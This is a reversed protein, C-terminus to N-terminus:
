WKREGKYYYAAKSLPGSSFTGPNPNGYTSGEMNCARRHAGMMTMQGTTSKTDNYPIGKDTRFYNECLEHFLVSKRCSTGADDYWEGSKALAVYGDFGAKPHYNLGDKSDLGNNSANIVGNHSDDISTYAGNDTTASTQGDIAEYFYKKDSSVLKNVLSLGPDKDLVKNIKKQSLNGFNMTVKGDKGFSVYKEYRSRKILSLIDNKSVQNNAIWFERGDPDVLKIPNWACYNYPSLSPYKDAMPDVSLWMTMLEHDMYRAGFYGYGTEEDLEKGTFSVISFDTYSSDSDTVQLVKGPHTKQSFLGFFVNMGCRNKVAAPSNGLDHYTGITEMTTQRTCIYM